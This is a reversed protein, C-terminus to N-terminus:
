SGAAFGQQITRIEALVDAPLPGKEVARFAQQFEDLSAIGIETTPLEPNSVVFRVALEPLSAAHGADVLPKFKLARQVDTAYDTNSGIPAVSPMGLPHRAMSGSLAGGALVRVGIAGVGHAKCLSLLQKFDQAPYNAPVAEGASPVLMNYFVQASDFRDLEVLKHIEATSGKATFGIFRTKGEDRLKEFAPMIENLVQDAMVNGGDEPGGLTNHLQFIDVHDLKLRGLSAELSARIEKAPDKLHEDTLGVKTSIVLEDKKGGLIRGLNTESAGNGYQAATDFFNIGNDRAWAIANAQDEPSGKTMLGGVAGCGFTLQSVELGTRGFTNKKM